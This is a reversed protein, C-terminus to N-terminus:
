PTEEEPAAEDGRADPLDLRAVAEARAAEGRYDYRATTEVHAHGVLDRALSLDAGADLLDSVYTRRLDHPSFPAVGAERARRRVIGYLAQASLGRVTVQGHGDLARLLPGPADGRPGEIWADLLRRVGPPLAVRRERRGKGEVRVSAAELAELRLAAAEARRLGAGYLLGLAALDRAGAPAPDRRCVLLLTALEARSVRRGAPLAQGRIPAVSAAREYADRDLHGLLWAQRLVGRLAALRLNAGAPSYRAALAARIGVAHRYRLREWPVSAPDTAEGGTLVGAVVGLARRMTRRSEPSGLSAMYASLASTRTEAASEELASGSTPVLDSRVDEDRM